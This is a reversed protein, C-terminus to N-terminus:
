KLSFNQKTMIDKTIFIFPILISNLPVIFALKWLMIEMPYIKQLNTMFLIVMSPIWSLLHSCTLFAIQVFLARNSQNRSQHTVHIMNSIMMEAVLNLNIILNFSIAIFHFGIIFCAIKKVLPFNRSPDLYPSCIITPISENKLWSLTTILSAFFFSIICGVLIIKFILDSRKFKSDMPNKVVDFRAYSLLSSLFPSTLSYFLNIGCSLICLISSKWQDEVIVLNEEFYLDSIWLIFLPISGTVNVISISCIISNFAEGKHSDLKEKRNKNQLCLHLINTTITVFSMVWFTSQIINNVLLHSCSKYWPAKVSCKINGVAVCCFAFHEIRLFKINLHNLFETSEKKDLSNNGLSLLSLKDSKVIFHKLLATLRNNSLDIYLLSTSNYFAYQEIYQLVNNNLKIVKLNIKNKFCYAKIHSVANKNVDLVTVHNMLSVVSCINKLNTYTVSLFYIYRFTNKLQEESFPACNLIVMTVYSFYIPLTNELINIDYCRVALTLCQCLSPCNIDKLLCLYEDDKNPCDLHQNCVDGLHVCKSSMKCKFMNICTRNGCQHHTSEDYGYPCDWKGDCIYGWPICYFDPCKFMMNCEYLKCSQLHDGKSCPLLQGEKNLKYSCIESIDYFTYNTSYMSQCSLKGTIIEKRQSTHINQQQLYLSGQNVISKESPNSEKGNLFMSDYPKCTGDWSKFYFDSCEKTQSLTYIWKCQRTYNLGIPCECGVEDFAVDGPCDKEENCVFKYSIYVGYSCKFVHNGVFYESQYKACIYMGEKESYDSDLKYSYTNWFRRYTVIYELDPSFLPPFIDNVADFLSQFQEIHFSTLRKSPCTEQINTELKHWVFHFCANNQQIYGKLCSKSDPHM